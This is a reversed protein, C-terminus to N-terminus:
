KMAMKRVSKAELWDDPSTNLSGPKQTQLNMKVSKHHDTVATWLIIMWFEPDHNRWFPIFEPEVELDNGWGSRVTQRMGIGGAFSTLVDALFWIRDIFTTSIIIASAILLQLGM